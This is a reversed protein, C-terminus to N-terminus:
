NKIGSFGFAFKEIRQIKSDEPFEVKPLNRCSDFAGSEIIENFSPICAKEVDCVAAVLINYNESNLSPKRLLFQDNLCMFYKNKPAVGIRKLKTMFNCWREGARGSSNNERQAQERATRPIRIGFQAYVLQTFRSCDFTDPGARGYSYNCGLKTRAKEVIKEGLTPEGSRIPEPLQYNSLSGPSWCFRITRERAPCDWWRGSLTVTFVESDRNESM